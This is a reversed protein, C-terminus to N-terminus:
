NKSHHNRIRFKLTFDFPKKQIKGAVLGETLAIIIDVEGEKLASIMAGTGGKYDNWQVTVKHKQFLGREQALHWPLNFHEPVGGVKVVDVM